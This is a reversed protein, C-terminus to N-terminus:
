AWTLSRVKKLKGEDDRAAAPEVHFVTGFSTKFYSCNRDYVVKLRNRWRKDEAVWENVVINLFADLSVKDLRGSAGSFSLEEVKSVAASVHKQKMYYM